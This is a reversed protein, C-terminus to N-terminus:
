VSKFSSERRDKHKFLNLLLYMGTKFSIKLVNTLILIQISHTLYVNIDIIRYREKGIGSNLGLLYSDFNRMKFNESSRDERSFKSDKQQLYNVRM